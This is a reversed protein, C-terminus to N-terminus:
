DNDGSATLEPFEISTIEYGGVEQLWNHIEVANGKSQNTVSFFLTGWGTMSTYDHHERTLVPYTGLNAGYAELWKLNRQFYDKNGDHYEITVTVLNTRGVVTQPESFVYNYLPAVYQIGPIGDTNGNGKVTMQIYNDVGNHSIFKEPSEESTEMITFGHEKLYATAEDTQSGYIILYQEDQIEELPIESFEGELLESTEWYFLCDDHMNYGEGLKFEQSIIEVLRYRISPADMPPEAIHTKEVKLVYEYGRIYEFDEIGSFPEPQWDEWGEEKIKMSPQPIGEMGYYTGLEHSVTMMVTETWDGSKDPYPSGAPEKGCAIIATMVVAIMSIKTILKM